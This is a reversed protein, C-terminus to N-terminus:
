KTVMDDGMKLLAREADRVMLEVTRTNPPVIIKRKPLRGKGEQHFRAIDAITATGNPHKGPGGYGTEVGFSIDKLHAGPAGQFVPDLSAFMLGTDRLIAAAAKKGRRRKHKLPAWDGGGRSFKVFRQQIFGRFRAAWQRTMIRIPGSSSGSAIASQYRKLGRLDVDVTTKVKTM